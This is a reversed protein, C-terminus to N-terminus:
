GCPELVLLAAAGGVIAALSLLSLFWGLVLLLGIREDALLDPAQGAGPASAADAALRRRRRGVWACALVAGLAALGPLLTGGGTLLWAITGPDGGRQHVARGPVGLCAIEMVSWAVFLHIAWATPGGLVAYWLLLPPIRGPAGPHAPRATPTSPEAGSSPSSVPKTM